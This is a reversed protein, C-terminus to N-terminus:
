TEHSKINNLIEEYRKTALESIEGKKCFNLGALKPVAREVYIKGNVTKQRLMELAELFREDNKAINYFSLVYVYYFLSYGRFPYQIQMFLKGIGYHCPSIPRRIIWHELLFNVARDLQPNNNFYPSFRFLDLVVLTTYPTSYVTEEGRGFSYKNCKWGGDAQQTDLFYNFSKKIRDDDSYGMHCLVNIALATHCPYIGGSYVKIKGDQRWNSFILNATDRMVKNDSPMGLELLYLMSELTTYPAGKLLKRDDTSWYDSGNDYRHSLIIEADSIYKEDISM